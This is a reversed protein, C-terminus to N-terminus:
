LTPASLGRRNCIDILYDRFLLFDGQQIRNSLCIFNLSIETRPYVAVAAVHYYTSFSYPGLALGKGNRVLNMNTEIGDSRMVRSLTINHARCVHKLIRDEASDELGSIMTCGQLDQFTLSPLAARPDAPSMLICQTERILCCSYFDKQYELHNETPLRDLALDISGDRLCALFDKGAETVFAVDLEPHADFFQVVDHFLDNSFVRSGLGIRLRRRPAPHILQIREQFHQWAEMAQQAERCFRIGAGTLLLGQVSREFLAYGLEKELRQIQQSLASQSIFLNRAARSINQCRSVELVYQVQTITM